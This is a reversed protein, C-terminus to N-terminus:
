ATLHIYGTEVVLVCGFGQKPTRHAECNPCWRETVVNEVYDHECPLYPEGQDHKVSAGCEGYYHKMGFGVPAAGHIESGPSGENVVLRTHTFALFDLFM